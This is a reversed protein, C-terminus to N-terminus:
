ARLAGGTAKVVAAVVKSSLGELEADTLTHDVPQLTVSLAVSKKGAEVGKGTYIDFITVERILAKDATKIAKILKDATVAEDLLFAYDRSVPQLAELKLLPKNTSATRPTPIAALYLECAVMPGAADCADLVSPHLEGFYGLL